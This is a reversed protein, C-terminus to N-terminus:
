KQGELYMGASSGALYGTSFAIQLNYGGTLADVDLVEGAFYLGPVKKSMLSSPNIEKVNVGGKTIVAERFGNTATVTIPLAKILRVFRRREAKTIMNVKKTPEIESLKVITSILRAPFLKGLANEFDKNQSESFDRLVRADLIEFDLGPKLDIFFEKPKDLKDCVYASASLTLPGTLGDSTFMMEGLENFGDTKLRVNKLSLGELDKVWDEMTILPVLSPFVPIVTHGFNKAFRFGDGTSGTSPYSLGGTAIIVSKFEKIYNESGAAKDIKSLRSRFCESEPKKESAQMELIYGSNINTINKVVTNLKVNVGGQKMYLKLADIIDGSMDSAPFVRGGRETKLSVGLSEFFDMLSSSDFLNFASYLFRPNSVVNKMISANDTNNTVNCRGKGTIFLKKGLKENKEVLMVSKGFSAARGAAIMGAPGGGIVVVDYLVDGRDNM